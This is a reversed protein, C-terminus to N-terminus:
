ESGNRADPQQKEFERGPREATEPDPGPDPETPSEPNGSEYTDLWEKMQALTRTIKKAKQTGAGYGIMSAALFFFYVKLGYEGPRDSDDRYESITSDPSLSDHRPSAFAGFHMWTSVLTCVAVGVLALALRRLPTATIDKGWSYGWLLFIIFGMAADGRTWEGIMFNNLEM